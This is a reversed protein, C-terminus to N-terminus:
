FRCLFFVFLMVMEAATFAIATFHLSKETSCFIAWCVPPFFFGAFAALIACWLPAHLSSTVWSFLASSGLAAPFMILGSDAGAFPDDFSDSWNAKGGVSRCLANWMPGHGMVGTLRFEAVHALEHRIVEQLFAEVDSDELRDANLEIHDPWALGNLGSDLRMIRVQPVRGLKEPSALNSFGMKKWVEEAIEEARHIIKKETKINNM